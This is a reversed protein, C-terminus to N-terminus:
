KGNAYSYTVSAQLGNYSYNCLTTNGSAPDTYYDFSVSINKSTDKHGTIDIKKVLHVTPRGLLGAYFLHEFGLCGLQASVTEPLLGNRNLEVSPTFKYTVPDNDNETFSISALDGNNYTISASSRYVKVGFNDDNITKDWGALRGDRYYFEYVDKNITMREILLNSNLAIEMPRNGSNSATVSKEGYSLKSAYSSAPTTGFLSGEAQTLRGDSYNFIWDYCDPANGNHSIGAVPSAGDAPLVPKFPSPSDDDSSCALLSVSTLLICAPQWLCNKLNM